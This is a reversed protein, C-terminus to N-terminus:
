FVISYRTIHKCINLTDLMKRNWIDVKKTKKKLKSNVKIIYNLLIKREKCEIDQEKIIQKLREIEQDQEIIKCELNQDSSKATSHSGLKDEEVDENMTLKMCKSNSDSLPEKIFM